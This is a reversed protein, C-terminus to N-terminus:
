RTTGTSSCAASGTVHLCAKGGVPPSWALTGGSTRCVFANPGLATILNQTGLSTDAATSGAGSANDFLNTPWTGASLAPTCPNKPGPSAAASEASEQASTLSPPSVTQTVAAFGSSYIGSNGGGSTADGGTDCALPLQGSNTHKDYCGGVAEFNAVNNAPAGVLYSPGNYGHIFGGIHVSVPPGTTPNRIPSDGGSLCVDGAIWVAVNVTGSGGFVTPKDPGLGSDCIQAPNYGGPTPAGGMVFGYGWFAAPTGPVQKSQLQEQLVRTAKGNPSHTTSTVKRQASSMKQATWSINNGAVTTTGSQTQGVPLTSGADNTVVWNAAVDLGAEGGTFAQVGQRENSSVNQNSTMLQATAGASITLVLLVILALVLTQGREDQLRRVNDPRRLKLMTRAVGTIVAM